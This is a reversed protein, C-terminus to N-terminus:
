NKRGLVSGQQNYEEANKDMDDFNLSLDGDFFKYANYESIAPPPLPSFLSLNNDLLLSPDLLSEDQQQQQGVLPQPELSLLQSMDQLPPQETYLPSQTLLQQEQPQLVPMQMQQNQYAQQMSLQSDQGLRPDLYSPPQMPFQQDQLQNGNLYSPQQMLMQQQMRMQHQVESQILLQHHYPLMQNQQQPVVLQPPHQPSVGNVLGNNQNQSASYDVEMEGENDSNSSEDDSEQLNNLLLSKSKGGQSSERVTNFLSLGTLASNPKVKSGFSDSNSSSNSSNSSTSYTNQKAFKLHELISPFKGLIFPVNDFWDKIDKEEIFKNTLDMKREEYFGKEFDKIFAVPLVTEELDLTPADLIDKFYSYFKTTNKISAFVKEYYGAIFDFLSLRSIRNIIPVLKHQGELSSILQNFAGGPCTTSSSEDVGTTDQEVLEPYERQMEVLRKTFLRLVSPTDTNTCLIKDHMALWVFCLCEKLSIGTRKEQFGHVRPASLMLWRFAVFSDVNWLQPLFACPNKLYTVGVSQNLIDKEIANLITNMMPNNSTGPCSDKPLVQELISKADRLIQKKYFDVIEAFTKDLFTTLTTGAYKKFYVERLQQAALATQQHVAEGHTNQKDEHIRMPAATRSTAQAQVQAQPRRVNVGLRYVVGDVKFEPTLQYNPGMMRRTQARQRAGQMCSLYHENRFFQDEHLQLLGNRGDVPQGVLNIMAIYDFLNGQYRYDNHVITTEKLPNVKQDLLFRTVTFADQENYTKAINKKARKKNIKALAIQHNVFSQLHSLLLTNGVTKEDNESAALSHYDAGLGHLTQLVNLIDEAAICRFVLHMGLSLKNKDNLNKRIHKEDALFNLNKLMESAPIFSKNKPISSFNMVAQSLEWGEKGFEILLVKTVEPKQSKAVFLEPWGQNLLTPDEKKKLMTLFQRFLNLSYSFSKRNADELKMLNIFATVLIQVQSATRLDAASRFKQECLMIGMAFVELIMKWNADRPNSSSSNNDQQMPEFTKEKKSDKEEKYDGKKFAAQGLLHTACTTIELLLKFLHEPQGNILLGTQVTAIFHLLQFRQEVDWYAKSDLAILLLNPNAELFQANEKTADLSLEQYKHFLGIDAALEVSWSRPELNNEILYRLYETGGQYSLEFLGRTDKEKSLLWAFLQRTDNNCNTFISKKQVRKEISDSILQKITSNSRIPQVNKDLWLVKAFYDGCKKLNVNQNVAFINNIWDFNEDEYSDQDDWRNREGKRIHEAVNQFYKILGDTRKISKDLQIINLINQLPVHSRFLLHLIDGLFEYNNYDATVKFSSRVAVTENMITEFLEPSEQLAAWILINDESIDEEGLSFIMEWTLFAKGSQRFHKGLNQIKQKFHEKSGTQIIFRINEIQQDAFRRGQLKTETVNMVDFPINVPADLNARYIFRILKGAHKSESDKSIERAIIVDKSEYDMSEAVRSRTVRRGDDRSLAVSLPTDLTNKKSKKNAPSKVESSPSDPIAKRKM